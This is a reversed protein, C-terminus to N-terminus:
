LVGNKDTKNVLEEIMRNTVKRLTGSAKLAFYENEAVEVDEETPVTAPPNDDIQLFRERDEEYRKAINVVYTKEGRERALMAAPTVFSEASADASVIEDFSKNNARAM